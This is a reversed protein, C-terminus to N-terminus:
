KRPSFSRETKALRAAERRYGAAMKLAEQRYDERSLTRALDETAAALRLYEASTPM